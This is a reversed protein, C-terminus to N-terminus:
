ALRVLSAVPNLLNRDRVDDMIRTQLAPYIGVGRSRRGPEVDLFESTSIALIVTATLRQASDIFQRLVEYYQMAMARTYYRSGDTPRKVVTVRSNDLMMLTGTFGVYHFWYLASELFYKATTRNVTNYISFPKVSGLRTTTGTLWDIIPQGGYYIHDRPTGELNCLHFMAVRFDKSMSRNRFIRDAFGPKLAVLVTEADTNNAEGIAEYVNGDSTADIDGTRYNLEKALRLIFKRATLRWDVQSAMSFFIDQPMHFRSDEANINVVLYGLEEGRSGVLDKVTRKHEGDTVAFKIASGGDKIFTTLYDKDLHGIWDGVSLNEAM